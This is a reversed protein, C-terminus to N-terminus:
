FTIRKVVQSLVPSTSGTDNACGSYVAFITHTGATMGSATFTAVGTSSLTSTGLTTRGDHFTVTGSPAIGSAPTVTATFTVKSLVTSPNLSSIVVTNTAAPNITEILVPSTGALYDANGTYVATLSYTGAPPYSFFPGFFTLTGTGNSIYASTLLTSGNMLNVEGSPLGGNPNSVTFTLQIPQGYNAPNLSSTILVQSEAPGVVESLAASSSGTYSSTAHYVATIEHTGVTLASTTFTAIGNNLTGTGIVILGTGFTVTGTPTGYPSTVSAAFTVTQLYQAPDRSSILKTTTTGPIVTQSRPFSTSPAFDPDGVYQASIPDSGLPLTSITCQAAGKSLAVFALPTSGAYFQVWGTVITRESVTSGVTATLTVPQDIASPSPSTTLGTATPEQFDEHTGTSTSKLINSGGLYIATLINDGYPLSTIGLTAVGNSISGTGLTTNGNMFVATGSAAPAGAVQASATLTITQGQVAPNPSATLAITSAQSITFITANLSEVNGAVDTSFFRVTHAGLATVMFPDLYTTMAGNDLQYSTSAVGSANDTAALTVQVSSSYVIGSALTGTLLAKTVPPATDVKVFGLAPTSYNGANDYAFYLYTSIGDNAFVMPVGLYIACSSLNGPACSNNSRSVYVHAIGSPNTGPDTATLTVLATTNNWGAANPTPSISATVTPPTPDYCFMPYYKNGTSLGTNDWGIVTLRHCGSNTLTAQGLGSNPVEPGSYFSNGAGQHAESEPDSFSRDWGASYGAVGSAPLSGSNQGTISWQVTQPTNYWVKSSFSGSPGTFSINPRSPTQNGNMVYYNLAWAMQLANFSGWGTVMDYGPGACEFPTNYLTTYYNSNCGSTIDYFPNHPAYTQNAENTYGQKYLPFNMQGIPGCPANGSTGCINGLATLYANEQAVFGAVEPTAISTGRVGQFEGQFVFGQAAGANLAIDPVSRADQTCAPHTQFAASNFWGSCGGGSGGANSKCAYQNQTGQWGTESAFSGDSNFGLTTGGVGVVDWDSAPYGVDPYGFCDLTAGNDGSAALLTWGAAVMSNFVQHAKLMQKYDSCDGEACAFSATMIRSDGNTAMANYIDVFTSDMQNPATYVLVRTTNIAKDMSNSTAIAWEVDLTAEASAASNCCSGGGDVQLHRYNYVLYTYRGLFSKVDADSFDAAAVVDITSDILSGSTSGTPNCCHGLAHLATFDYGYPSYLDNPEILGNTLNSVVGDASAQLDDEAQITRNKEESAEMAPALANPDGGGTISAGARFAPGPVYDPQKTESSGGYASHSRQISNMGGIYDMIGNLHAPIAPERDNSFEVADRLQYHNIQVGFAKEIVKVPAEADVILRNPFRRTITLGNSTLWDVVAQEDQASPAFRANFEEATLYKHFNPSNPDQLEVLLQEEEDMKPPAVGLTLRLMGQPNYRDVFRAEGTVVQVPTNPHAAVLQRLNAQAESEGPRSENLDILARRPHLIPASDAPTTQGIAPRVSLLALLLTLWISFRSYTSKSPFCNPFVGNITHM